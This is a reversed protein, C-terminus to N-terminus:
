NSPDLGGLIEKWKALVLDKSESPTHFEGTFDYWGLMTGSPNVGNEVYDYKDITFWKEEVLWFKHGTKDEYFELEGTTTNYHPDLGSIGKPTLEHRVGKFDFWHDLNDLTPEEYAFVFHSEGDEYLWWKDGKSDLWYKIEGTKPDRVVVYGSVDDRELGFEPTLIVESFPIVDIKPVIQFDGDTFTVEVVVHTNRFLARLNPLAVDFTKTGNNCVVHLFYQQEYRIMNGTERLRKSEPAYVNSIKHTGPTGNAYKPLGFTVPWSLVVQHAASPIDYATLWGSVDSTPNNPDIQSFISIDRLWDIWTPYGPFTPTTGNSFRPMLFNRDAVTSIEFYDVQIDDYLRHNEFVFSFKTAVRVLWFDKEIYRKDAPIDVDYMASLTIDNTFDPAYHIANIKEEFDKDGVTVSELFAHLSGSLPYSSNDSLISAVSEENAVFYIRKHAEYKVESIHSYHDLYTDFNIYENSEVAGDSSLIIIRLSRMSENQLVPNARTEGVMGINCVLFLEEGEGPEDSVVNDGSCATMVVALVALMLANIHRFLRQM